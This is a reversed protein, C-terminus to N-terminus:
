WRRGLRTLNNSPLKEKGSFAMNNQMTLFTLLALLPGFGILVMTWNRYQLCVSSPPPLFSSPPIIIPDKQPRVTPLLYNKKLVSDVRFHYVVVHIVMVLVTITFLVLGARMEKVSMKCSHLEVSVLPIM